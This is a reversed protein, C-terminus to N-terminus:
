KGGDMATIALIAAPHSYAEHFYLSADVRRFVQNKNRGQRM